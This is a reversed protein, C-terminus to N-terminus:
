QRRAARGAAGDFLVTIRSGDKLEIIRGNKPQESAM